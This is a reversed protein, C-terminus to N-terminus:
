RNNSRVAGTTGFFRCRRKSKKKHPHLPHLTAVDIIEMGLRGRRHMVGVTDGTAVSNYFKHNVSFEKKVGDQRLSEISYVKYPAGRTYTNRGTRKSHYRTETKKKEIIYYKEYASGKDALMYNLGLLFASVVVAVIVFLIAVNVGWKGTFSIRSFNRALILAVAGSLVAVIIWFLFGAGPTYDLMVWTGMAIFVLMIVAIVWLVERLSMKASM